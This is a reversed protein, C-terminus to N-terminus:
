IDQDTLEITRKPIASNQWRIHHNRERALTQCKLKLWSWAAYIEHLLVDWCEVVFAVVGMVVIASCLVFAPFILTISVPSSEHFTVPERVNGFAFQVAEFYKNDGRLSIKERLAVHQRFVQLWLNSLGAEFMRGWEKALYPTLLNKEGVTYQVMTFPSYGKNRVIHRKGSRKIRRENSDFNHTFVFAVVTSHLMTRNGRLIKNVFSPVSKDYVSVLKAKLKALFKLQKSQPVGSSILEPIVCDTLVTKYSRTKYDYISEKAVIPIDWNVLDYVGSPPPPPKIVALNSYM